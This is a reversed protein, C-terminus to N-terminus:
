YYCDNLEISPVTYEFKKLSGTSYSHSYDNDKVGTHYGLDKKKDVDYMYGTKTSGFYGSSLVSNQMHSLNKDLDYSRSQTNAEFGDSPVTTHSETTLDLSSEQKTGYREGSLVGRRASGLASHSGGQVFAETSGGSDQKRGETYSSYGSKLSGGHGDTGRPALYSDGRVSKGISSGYSGDRQYREASGSGEKTTFYGGKLGGYEADRLALSSDGRSTSERSAYAEGDQRYGKLDTKRDMYSRPSASFSSCTVADQPPCLQGILSQLETKQQVLETNQFHSKQQEQELAKLTAKLNTNRAYLEQFMASSVSEGSDMDQM